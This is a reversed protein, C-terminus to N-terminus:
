DDSCLDTCNAGINMDHPLAKKLDSLIWGSLPEASASNVLIKRPFRPRPSQETVDHTLLGKLRLGTLWNAGLYEELFTVQETEGSRAEM